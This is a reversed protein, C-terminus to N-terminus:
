NDSFPCRTLTYPVYGKIGPSGARNGSFSMLAASAQEVDPSAETTLWQIRESMANILDGQEAVVSKQTRYLDLLFGFEEAARRALRRQNQEAVVSRTLLAVLAVIILSSWNM